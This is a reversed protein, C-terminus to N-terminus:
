IGGKFAGDEEGDFREVRWFIKLGRKVVKGVQQGIFATGATRERRM